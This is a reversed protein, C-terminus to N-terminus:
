LLPREFHDLKALAMKTLIKPNQKQEPPHSNHKQKKLCPRQYGLSAESKKPLQGQVESEGAQIWNALASTTSHDCMPAKLMNLLYEM